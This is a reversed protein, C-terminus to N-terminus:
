GFVSRILVDSGQFMSKVVNEAQSAQNAQIQMTGEALVTSSNKEYATYTVQYTNSM